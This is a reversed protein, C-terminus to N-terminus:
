GVSRIWFGFDLIWFGFGGWGKGAPSAGGVVGNSRRLRKEESRKEESRKAFAFLAPEGGGRWGVM